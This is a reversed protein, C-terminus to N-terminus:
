KSPATTGARFQQSLAAMARYAECQRQQETNSWGLLRGMEKAVTDVADLGQCPGLGIASRRLLFDTVTFTSEEKVAHWVQALIDRCHPCISQGGRVDQRALDLIQSFRSGYLAVLHVVTEGPLSSEQAVQAVKDPPVAPAGPLPAEATTCSTKVGLKQCVLDVTEQAIARYGTIKGGLVSVFGGIDDHREHDILRHRRSINSARKGILGALSRLGATAYFIDERRLAPFAQRVEALLYDVDKAEAYVNDLDGSYDTDTTGILSYGQWPIVFFLRNDARAFLVVAKHSVQPTLIHVGKTRRVTPKLLKPFMNCISDMWHGAANVVLRAKVRHVQGSLVDAVQVGTVTGSDSVLGTIRAHNIISAGHEAASLANELCLREAFAVQCDYYLCAGSLRTLALGPELELTERRSLYQRSPLSKDFSLLDYLRMGLAMVGRTLPGTLPLLFPLPQVLHPAINLLVERERMDQRVLRFDLHRLYRLGGHILRSSRSTTGYAFDEKELLLTRLGRLSADRAIGTGVIGGGVVILDFTQRGLDDFDRKV